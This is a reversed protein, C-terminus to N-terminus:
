EHYNHEIPLCNLDLVLHDVHPSFQKVKELHNVRLQWRLDDGRVDELLDWIEKATEYVWQVWSPNDIAINCSIKLPTTKM